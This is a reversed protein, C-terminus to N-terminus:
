KGTRKESRRLIWLISMLLALAILFFVIGGKRHLLNNNIFSQDVYLALSSLTVIRIGNKIVALPFIFLVLITRRWNTRLFVNSLILGMIFLAISSRIGSCEEAVEVSFGPLHFILGERTFSMGTLTFFIYAAEASGKQLLLIIKEMIFTPVPILLFLFFLPFAGTRFARVGFFLIFGGIWFLIASFITLSLYDNQDLNIVNTKYILYLIAGTLILIIGAPYAYYTDSFITKRKLYMFYGSIMPILIIHSYHANYQLALVILDRMPEYFIVLAIINFLLFLINRPTMQRAIQTTIKIAPSQGM